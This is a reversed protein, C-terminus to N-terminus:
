GPHEDEDEKVEAVDKELVVQFLNREKGFQSIEKPSIEEKPENKMKYQWGYKDMWESFRDLKQRKKKKIRKENWADRIEKKLRLTEEEKKRKERSRIQRKESIVAMAAQIHRESRERQKYLFEIKENPM